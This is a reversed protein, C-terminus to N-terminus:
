AEIYLKIHLKRLCIKMQQLVTFLKPSFLWFYACHFCFLRLYISAQLFSIAAQILIIKIKHYKLIYYIEGSLCYNPKLYFCIRRKDQSFDSKLSKIIFPQKQESISWEGHLEPQVLSSLSQLQVSLFKILIIRQSDLLSIQLFLPTLDYLYFALAIKMTLLFINEPFLQKQSLSNFHFM